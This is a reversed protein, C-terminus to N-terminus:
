YPLIKIYDKINKAIVHVINHLTDSFTFEAHVINLEFFNLNLIPAQVIAEKLMMFATYHAPTWEFKAKYHILLTLPKAMKASDKTFKRNHRVLGLFTCVQKATKPPHM